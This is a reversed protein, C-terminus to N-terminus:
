TLVLTYLINVDRFSSGYVIVISFGYLYCDYLKMYTLSFRKLDVHLPQHLLDHSFFTCLICSSRPLSQSVLLFGLLGAILREM